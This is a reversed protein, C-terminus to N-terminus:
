AKKQPKAVGLAQRIVNEIGFGYENRTASGAASAAFRGVRIVAIDLGV